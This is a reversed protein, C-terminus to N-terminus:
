HDLDDATVLHLLQHVTADELRYLVSRGERRATVWSQLRLLRLAQSTASESMGVSEALASVSIEGARHIGALLRLRNPDGLLAFRNAWGLLVADEPPAEDAHGRPEPVPADDTM